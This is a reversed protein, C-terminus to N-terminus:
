IFRGGKCCIKKDFREERVVENDEGQTFEINREYLVTQNNMQETRKLAYFFRQSIRNIIKMDHLM